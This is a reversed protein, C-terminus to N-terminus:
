HKNTNKTQCLRSITGCDLSKPQESLAFNMEAVHIVFNIFRPSPFVTFLFPIPPQLLCRCYTPALGFEIKQITLFCVFFFNRTRFGGGSCKICRSAKTCTLDDVKM